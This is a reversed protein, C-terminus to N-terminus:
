INMFINFFWGFKGSEINNENFIGTFDRAKYSDFEQTNPVIRFINGPNREINLCVEDVLGIVSEKIIEEFITFNESKELIEDFNHSQIKKFNKTNNESFNFNFGLGEPKSRENFFHGPSFANASGPQCNLLTFDMSNERKKPPKYPRFPNSSNLLISQESSQTLKCSSNLSNNHNNMHHLNKYRFFNDFSSYIIFTPQKFLENPNVHHVLENDKIRQFLYGITTTIHSKIIILHDNRKASAFMRLLFQLYKILNEGHVGLISFFLIKFIKLMIISLNEDKECIQTGCLLPVLDDIVQINNSKILQFTNTTSIMYTHSELVLIDAM